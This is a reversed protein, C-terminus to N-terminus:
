LLGGRGYSALMADVEDELAISTADSVFKRHRTQIQTSDVLALPRGLVDFRGHGRRLGQEVFRAIPAPAKRPARSEQGALLGLLEELSVGQNVILLTPSDAGFVTKAAVDALARVSLYNTRAGPGIVVSGRRARRALRLLPRLPHGVGIVNTPRLIVLEGEFWRRAEFESLLKSREYENPPAVPSSEDVIGGPRGYVGATSVLVLRRAGASTAAKAIAATGAINVEALAHRDSSRVLAAVHVVVEAGDVLRSLAHEDGLSGRVTVRAHACDERSRSLVSVDCHTALRRLIWSGVFGTGGTLAVRM